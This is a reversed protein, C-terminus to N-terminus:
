SAWPKRCGGRSYLWYWWRMGVLGLEAMVPHVCAPIMGLDEGCVLMDTAGMLVPLTRHSQKRWLADQSPPWRTHVAHLWASCLGVVVAAGGKGSVQRHHFYDNHLRLLEDRWHSDLAKFSSTTNLAFRQLPRWHVVISLLVTNGGAMCGM